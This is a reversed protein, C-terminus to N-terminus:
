RTKDFLPVDVAFPAADFHPRALTKLQSLHSERLLLRLFNAGGSIVDTSTAKETM